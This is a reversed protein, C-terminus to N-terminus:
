LYKIEIKHTPVTKVKIKESLGIGFALLIENGQALFLMTDKKYNPIKRSNLYKKLKQHGKLGVPEIIDGEKRTRLEFDFDLGGFDAYVVGDSFPAYKDSNNDYQSINIYIGDNKYEGTKNIKICVEKKETKTLLKFYKRSVFLEYDTTVSCVTGSKSESNALIFDKLIEFRERDYNQPVLPAVLSYLIRMQTACSLNLFNKTNYEGSDSIKNKILELYENIIISDEKASESLSNISAIVDSNIKKMQPLINHRILNRNHVTDDNSSDHNPTLGFEACYAEIDKRESGLLPRYFIDRVDAIGQLGTVGTGHAIRYILTEANDNKNHATFIINSNFKKCCNRFFEYRANRAATETHPINEDLKESYFEIGLNKCFDKCNQEEADSEQGRWNHNLHLAIIKNETISKLIHLLCMSDAGGSFAVLYVLDASNIKYKLLFDKVKESVKNM